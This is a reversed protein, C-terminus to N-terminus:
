KTAGWSLIHRYITLAEEEKRRKGGREEEKRAEGRRTEERSVNQRGANQETSTV